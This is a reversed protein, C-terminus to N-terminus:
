SKGERGGIVGGGERWGGEGQDEGKGQVM